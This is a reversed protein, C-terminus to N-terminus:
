VGNEEYAIKNLASLYAQICSYIIDTSIGRGAYLKAGRRLKILASGLAERGETVSQIEFDDLEYHHGTIQEIALFAADIPGDGVTIGQHETGNKRLRIHASPQMVNSCNINYSLLQWTPEAQLACSAVIADLEKAGVAKSRATKRVTDYVLEYDADSLDYGLRSVAHIVANLDASEDLEFDQPESAPIAAIQSLSSSSRKESAIWEIQSVARHLETYLVDSSFGEDAGRLRLIDAFDAYPTMEGGAASVKVEGAGARVAAIACAAGIHLANTFSVGLCVGSLEPVAAYLKEIFDAVEYPMLIGATDEFSIVKAGSQIARSIAASLLEFEARTADLASFEVEVGAAACAAVREAILALMKEGKLHLTYEMQVTSVPLAVSLRAGPAKSLLAAREAPDEARGIKLSIRSKSLFASVTKLLLTDTHEDRVAPFEILDTQIKDLQRAIELKEKFSLAAGRKEEFLTVDSVFVKKMKFCRMNM